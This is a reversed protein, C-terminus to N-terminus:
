KKTFVTIEGTRGFASSFSRPYFRIGSGVQTTGDRSTTAALGITHLAYGEEFVGEEIKIEPYLADSVASADNARERSNARCSFYQPSLTAADCQFVDSTDDVSLVVEVQCGKELVNGVSQFNGGEFTVPYQGSQVDGISVKGSWIKTWNQTCNRVVRGSEPPVPPTPSAFATVAIVTSIIVATSIGVATKKFKSM